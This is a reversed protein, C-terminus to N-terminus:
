IFKEGTVRLSVIEFLDLLYHKYLYFNMQGILGYMCAYMCVCMSAVINVNFRLFPFCLWEDIM